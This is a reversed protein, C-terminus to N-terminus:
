PAGGAGSPAHPIPTDDDTKSKPEDKSSPPDDTLPTPNAEPAYGPLEELRVRRQAVHEPPTFETALRGTRADVNVMVTSTDLPPASVERYQPANDEQEVRTNAATRYNPDLTAVQTNPFPGPKYAVGDPVAFQQPPKGALAGQMMTRFIPSNVEGSFDRQGMTGGAQKGVWVAGSYVPTVGVFWLDRVDNTTGTKGGVQWGPIRSRWALGGQPGDFDNVVGLLMDLGLAAVQPTWARRQNQRENAADYLVEGRATTVRRLYRPQKWVGGNVFPAYAAAMMVPTTELTGLALSLGASRPPDFGLEVLKGRFTGMGIRDALRLTPINLSRNLAERLTMARNFYKGGFNQPKYVGGPCTSCPFTTPVDEELHTQDLGTSLATTYLLPKITSGVQRQGQAANNWDPPPQNGHLKQGVMAVVEGTYPDLLVAALTAGRPIVAQRSALEASSQAQPDLTTVVNLGGSNYVRERGFRAILEKEVQQMFHPARTTVVARLFKAKPNVLKADLVNGSADYKVRWGKPQLKAQWAGTAQERTVWGDEVMRNLLSRMYSRQTKYDFYRAPSPILTTLYVSEVLTLDKPAKGLYAQAASHLGYLEVPGGDGWYIVNLYNQLIEEKTFSREVQVSLMWEKVKRELTRAGELKTLLTNKVLQNTLTSGGEVRENNVTKKLGRLIGLPDVGYHEFFRRDENTVLATVMYPSIEDLTVITRNIRAGGALAPVLTGLPTLDRAYVRTTSGLTISDLERYDPIERAWKSAYTALMGAVGVAVAIVFATLLKLARWFYIM